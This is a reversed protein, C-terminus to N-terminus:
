RPISEKYAAAAAPAAVAPAAKGVIYAVMAAISPYDFVLTGPLALGVSRAVENRLEM